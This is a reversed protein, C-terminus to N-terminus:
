LHYIANLDILICKLFLNVTCKTPSSDLMSSRRKTATGNTLKASSIQNSDYKSISLTKTPHQQQDNLSQGNAILFNPRTKPSLRNDTKILNNLDKTKRSTTLTGDSSYTTYFSSDHYDFIPISSVSNSLTAKNISKFNDLSQKHELKQHLSHRNTCNRKLSLSPLFQNEKDTEKKLSEM